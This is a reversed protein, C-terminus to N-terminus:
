RRIIELKGSEGNFKVPDLGIARAILSIQGFNIALVPPLKKQQEGEKERGGETGGDKRRSRRKEGTEM